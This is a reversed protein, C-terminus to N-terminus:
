LSVSLGEFGMGVITLLIGEIGEVVVIIAGFTGMM